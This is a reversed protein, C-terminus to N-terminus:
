ACVQLTKWYTNKVLLNVVDDNTKVAMAFLERTKVEANSEASPKTVLDQPWKGPGKLWEPGEM